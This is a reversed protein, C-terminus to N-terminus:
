IPPSHAQVCPQTGQFLVAHQMQGSDPACCQWWKALQVSLSVLLLSSFLPPSLFMQKESLQWVYGPLVHLHLGLGQLHVSSSLEQGMEGGVHEEHLGPPEPAM